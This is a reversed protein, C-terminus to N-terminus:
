PQPEMVTEAAALLRGALAIAETPTFDISKADDLNAPNYLHVVVAPALGDCQGWTPAVDFVHENYATGRVSPWRDGGAGADHDGGCDKADNICWAPCTDLPQDVETTATM